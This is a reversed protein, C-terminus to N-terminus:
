TRRIYMTFETIDEDKLLEKELIATQKFPTGYLSKQIGMLDSNVNIYIRAILVKMSLVKMSLIASLWLTKGVNIENSDLQVTDLIIEESNKRTWSVVGKIEGHDRLGYLLIDSIPFDFIKNKILEIKSVFEIPNKYQHELTTINLYKVIDDLLNYSCYFIEKNKEIQKKIEVIFPNEVNNLMQLRILSNIVLAVDDIINFQEVEPYIKILNDIVCKVNRCGDFMTVIEIFTENVIYDESSSMRTKIRIKRGDEKRQYYIYDKRLQPVFKKMKDNLIM